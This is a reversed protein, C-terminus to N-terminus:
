DDRRVQTRACTGSTTFVDPGARGGDILRWFRSVKAYIQGSFFPLRMYWRDHSAVSVKFMCDEESLDEMVGCALQFGDVVVM